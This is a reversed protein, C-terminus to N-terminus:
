QDDRVRIWHDHFGIHLGPLEKEPMHCRICDTQPSVPCAVHDSESEQHCEICTAEYQTKSVDKFSEHPNHCTSCTFDGDSKLYCASRLLGVPQFRVLEDPYDRLKKRSITLPLRHCDGCLQIEAEVDWDSKGVSFKPPNPSLRAQRVHESAPGHCKECNVNGVLNTISQDEITGQTTHCYVCKEMVIGEHKLGFFEAPIRPSGPDEQPTPGLAGTAKFWSARHEIAITGGKTDPILSILTVAGKPSGLAYDLRFPRDGFKKPITVYLGSEDRHYHYTGYPEGADYTQGDFLEAIAPDNALSFTSHHGHRAHLQYNTPHCERCADRGVYTPEGYNAAAANADAALKPQDHTVQLSQDAQSSKDSVSIGTLLGAAVVIMTLLFANPLLATALNALQKLSIIPFCSSSLRLARDDIIKNSTALIGKMKVFLDIYASRIDSSDSNTHSCHVVFFGRERIM